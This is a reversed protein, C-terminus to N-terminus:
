GNSKVWGEPLSGISLALLTDDSVKSEDGIVVFETSSTFRVNIDLAANYFSHTQKALEKQVARSNPIIYESKM